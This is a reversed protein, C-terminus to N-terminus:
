FRGFGSSIRTLLGKEDSEVNEKLLRLFLAKFGARLELYREKLQADFGVNEIFSVYTRLFTGFQSYKTKVLSIDHSFEEQMKFILNLVQGQVSNLIRPYKEFDAHSKYVKKSDAKDEVCDTEKDIFPLYGYLDELILLARRMSKEELSTRLLSLLIRLPVVVPNPTDNEINSPNEPINKNAEIKFANAPSEKFEKIEEIEEIEEIQTLEQNGKKLKENAGNGLNNEKRSVHFDTENGFVGYSISKWAIEMESELFSRKLHINKGILIGKLAGLVRYVTKQDAKEDFLNVMLREFRYNAMSNQVYDNNQSFEMVLSLMMERIPKPTSQSTSADIFFVFGGMKAFNMACDPSSLLERLREMHEITEEVKQSYLMSDATDEIMKDLIRKIERNEDLTTEEVVFELWEKQETTLRPIDTKKTRDHHKTSWNLFGPWNIM